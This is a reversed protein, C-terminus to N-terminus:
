FLDTLLLLKIIGPQWLGDASMMLSHHRKSHCSFM